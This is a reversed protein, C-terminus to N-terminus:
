SAALPEEKVDSWTFNSTRRAILWQGGRRVYHDDYLVGSTTRVRRGGQNGILVVLCYATGTARDGQLEVTQQGNIHYVTDFGALFAGFRSELEARGKLSSTLRGGSFSEVVADETFLRVQSAIEKRDALTSFTDVLQKLAARDELQQLRQAVSQDTM